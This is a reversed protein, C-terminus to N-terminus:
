LYSRSSCVGVLPSGYDPHWGGVRAGNPGFHGLDVLLGVSSITNTLTYLNELRRERGKSDVFPVVISQFVEVPTERLLQNIQLEALGKAADRWKSTLIEELRGKEKVWERLAEQYPVPIERGAYIEDILDSLSQTQRHYNRDLSGSIPATSVLDMGREDRSTDKMFWAEDQYWRNGVKGYLLQGWGQEEFIDQLALVMNFITQPKGDAISVRYIPFEGRIRAQELLLEEPSLSTSAVRETTAVLIDSVKQRDFSNSGFIKAASDSTIEM